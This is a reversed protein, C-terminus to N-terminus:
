THTEVFTNSANAIQKPQSESVPPQHCRLQHPRARPLPQIWIVPITDFVDFVHNGHTTDNGNARNWVNSHATTGEASEM